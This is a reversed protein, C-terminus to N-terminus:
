SPCLILDSILSVQQVSDIQLLKNKYGYELRLVRYGYDNAFHLYEDATRNSLALTMENLEFMVIPQFSLLTDTAGELVSYEYGEVHIKIFNVASIKSEKVWKDLPMFQAEFKEEGKRLVSYLRNDLEKSYRQHQQPLPISLQKRELCNSMGLNHAHM